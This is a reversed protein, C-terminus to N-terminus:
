SRDEWYFAAITGVIGVLSVLADSSYLGCFAVTAYTYAVFPIIIHMLNELHLAGDMACPQNLTPQSLRRKLTACRKM